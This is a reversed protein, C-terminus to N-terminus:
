GVRLQAGRVEGRELEGSQDGEDRLWDSQVVPGDRRQGKEACLVWSATRSLDDVVEGGEGAGGEGGGGEAAFDEEGRGGGAEDGSVGWGEEAV